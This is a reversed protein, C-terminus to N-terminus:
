NGALLRPRREAARSKRCGALTDLPDGLGSWGSFCAQFRSNKCVAVGASRNRSEGALQSVISTLKFNTHRRVAALAWGLLGDEGWLHEM